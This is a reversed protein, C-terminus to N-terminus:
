IHPKRGPRVCPKSHTGSQRTIPTNASNKEQGLGVLLVRQNGAGAPAHLLLSAGSKGAFDGQAVIREILKGIKRDVAVAPPTLQGAEFIGVIICTQQAKDPSNGKISFEM